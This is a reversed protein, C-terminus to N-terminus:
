ANSNATDTAIPAAPQWAIDILCGAEHPDNPVFGTLHASPALQDLLGRTIGEHLRCVIPQSDAVVDRYPCNRLTYRTQGNPEETQGPQFGFATLVTRLADGPAHRNDVRIEEGIQGGIERGINEVQALATDSAATCRALWLALSRYASVSERQPPSDPALVWEHRPRGRGTSVTTREVLGAARLRALHLRIGNPHLHLREALEDTALPRGLESLLRVIKSRTRQSLVDAPEPIPADTGGTRLSIRAM